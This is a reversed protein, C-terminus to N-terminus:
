YLLNTQANQRMYWDKEKLGKEKVWLSFKPYSLGIDASEVPHDFADAINIAWPFNNGNVFYNGSGSRDDHLGFGTSFLSTGPYTKLHVEWGRGTFQGHPKGESAFIFLDYPARGIDAQDVANVFDISLTFPTSSMDETCSNRTRYMACQSAISQWADESLILVTESYLSSPSLSITEGNATFNAASINSKAVNPLHLAFGNHFDAGIAQIFYNLELSQLQNLNNLTQTYRYKVVLDNFDYDGKQPWRDEFMLTAYGARSPYYSTSTADQQDTQVLVNYSGADVSSDNNIGEVATIPSVDVSFLLDNFDNDGQHRNQDDFGVVFLDNQADFFIVNHHKKHEAEPNLNPLSYFPQQWPGSNSIEGYNGRWGWGNPIVFFGLAQGATLTIGLEVSDGQDMRGEWRKSANPFIIMHQQIDAFNSPPNDPDYIFYGLANRYGAGENLFTVQVTAQGVFDKDMVINSKLSGDVFSPNVARGEPLMSYINTLIASPLQDNINTLALPEGYASYHSLPDGGVWSLSINGQHTSLEAAHIHGVGLLLILGLSLSRFTKARNM